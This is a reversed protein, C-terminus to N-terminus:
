EDFLADSTSSSGGEQKQRQRKFAYLNQDAARIIDDISRMNREFQSIGYSVSMGNRALYPDRSVADAIRKAHQIGDLSGSGALVSVFEDGGYRAVVNMARAERLLVRGLQRLAEDGAVHGRTDNFTKFKDLDFIVLTLPRGRRAAALERQLHLQLHRRNPLGTLPDTLSLAELRQHLKANQLAVSAQSALRRVLHLEDSRYTHPEKHGATLLGVVQDHSRLPVAVATVVDLLARLEPFLDESEEDTGLVLPLGKEDLRARAAQPVSWSTGEAVPVQGSSAAWHARGDDDLLWVAAADARLLELSADVVKPLVEAADLTGTLVLGIEEMREAELRRQELEAVHQANEIAVAAIDAIGQLLELDGESYAAPQYSQCSVAGIVNGKIRLPSSIASRTIDSDQEGLVLLSHAHVRDEILTPRAARIVDSDSGRYSIEVRREEGRDAYFVVTALDQQADYLSIYFGAAELVRATERYIVRYLEEASLTRTLRRGIDLLVRYRESIEAQQANRNRSTMEECLPDIGPSEHCRSALPGPARGDPGQFGVIASECAESCDSPHM